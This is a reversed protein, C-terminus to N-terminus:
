LLFYYTVNSRTVWGPAWLTSKSCSFLGDASVHGMKRNLPHLCQFWVRPKAPLRGVNVAWCCGANSLHSCAVCAGGSVGRWNQVLGSTEQLQMNTTYTICMYFLRFMDNPRSRLQQCDWKRELRKVRPDTEGILACLIFSIDARCSDAGIPSHVLRSRLPWLLLANTLSLLIILIWKM